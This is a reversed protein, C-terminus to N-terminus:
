RGTTPATQSTRQRSPRSRLVQGVSVDSLWLVLLGAVVVPLFLTAHVLLAYATAQEVSVHVTDVLVGVLAADFTGVYGPSSPILTAFNAAAGSLLAVPYSGPIAFSGMLVFFVGLEVLWAGLSLASLALLRRGGRLLALGVGFERALRRVPSGFRPPLPRAVLAGLADVIGSRWSGLAVVVAGLAFGAGVALGVGVLYTPAPVLRLGVLLLAALALGDLIREVVLSALTIGYSVGRWRHLLYARALEGMRVPLLNNFTFGVLLARYLTGVDASGPPLLLGWRLSRLLAGTFYLAIALPVFRLDAARLADGLRQLDVARLLLGLLLASIGVGVLVRAAGRSARM